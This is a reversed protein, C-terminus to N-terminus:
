PNADLYKACDHAALTLSNLHDKELMVRERWFELSDRLVLLEKPPKQQQLDELETIHDLCRRYVATAERLVEEREVREDEQQNYQVIRTRLRDLEAPPLSYHLQQQAGPFLWSLLGQAGSRESLRQSPHQWASSSQQTVTVSPLVGKLMGARIAAGM